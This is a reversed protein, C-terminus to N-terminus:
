RVEVDKEEENNVEASSGSVSHDSGGDSLSSSSSNCTGSDSDMSAAVVKVETPAPPPSIPAIPHEITLNQYLLFLLLLASDVLAAYLFTKGIGYRRSM